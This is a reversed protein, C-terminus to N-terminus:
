LAFVGAVNGVCNTLADRFTLRQIRNAALFAHWRPARDVVPDRRPWLEGCPERARPLHTKIGDSGLRQLDGVRRLLTHAVLDSIVALGFLHTFVHQAMALQLDLRSQLQQGLPRRLAVAFLDLLRQLAGVAVAQADLDDVVRGNRLLFW